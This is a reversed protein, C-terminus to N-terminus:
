LSSGFTFTMMSRRLLSRRARPSSCPPSCRSTRSRRRRAHGALERREVRGLSARRGRRRRRARCGPGPPRRPRARSARRRPRRRPGRAARADHGVVDGLVAAQQEAERAGPLQAGVLDLDDVVGLEHGLLDVALVLDLVGVHLGSCRWAISASRSKRRQLTRETGRACFASASASTLWASSPARYSFSPPTGASVLPMHRKGLGDRRGIVTKGAEGLRGAAPARRAEDAVDDHVEAVGVALRDLGRDRLRAGVPPAGALHEDLAADQRGVLERADDGLAEADVLDVEADEPDVHRGGVQQGRARGLAVARHRDLDEVVARQQDRHDVRAVDEGDVVDRQHGAVLHARGDRGLLVDGREDLAQVGEVLDHDGLRDVGVVPASTTSRRSDAASAGTM